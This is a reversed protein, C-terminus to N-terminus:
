RHEIEVRGNWLPAIVLQWFLEGVRSQDLQVDGCSECYWARGFPKFPVWARTPKPNSCCQNM